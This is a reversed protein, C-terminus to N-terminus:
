TETQPPTEVLEVRFQEFRCGFVAMDVLATKLKHAWISGAIASWANAEPDFKFGLEMLASKSDAGYNPVGYRYQLSCASAIFAAFGTCGSVPLPRALVQILAYYDDAPTDWSSAGSSTPLQRIEAKLSWDGQLM